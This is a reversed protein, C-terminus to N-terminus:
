FVFVAWTASNNTNASLTAQIGSISCAAYLATLGQATAICHTLDATQPQTSLNVTCTTNASMACTGGNGKFHQVQPWSQEANLVPVPAPLYGATWNDLATNLNALIIGPSGTTAIQSTTLTPASPPYSNRWCNLTVNNSGFARTAEFHLTDGPVGTIVSSQLVATTASGSILVIELATTTEDCVFGAGANTAPTLPSLLLGVGVRNSIIAITAEAYQGLTTSSPTVQVSPNWMAINFVGNTNGVIQNSNCNVTSTAMMTWNSGIAGNARNCNEFAPPNQQLIGGNGFLPQSLVVGQPSFEINNTNTTPSQSPNQVHESVFRFPSGSMVPSNGGAPTGQNMSLEGCGTCGVNAIVPLSTSDMQISDMVVLKTQLNGEVTFFPQLPGQFTQISYMKTFNPSQVLGPYTNNAAIGTGTAYNLGDMIVNPPNTPGTIIEISPTPWWLVQGFNPQVITLPASINPTQGLAIDHLRVNFGGGALVLPISSLFNVSSNTFTCKEFQSNAGINVVSYQANSYTSFAMGSVIWQSNFLNTGIMPVGYGIWSVTGGSTQSAIQYGEQPKRWEVLAANPAMLTGNAAIAGSDRVYIRTCNTSGGGLDIPANFIYYTAAPTSPIFAPFSNFFPSACAASITRQLAIGNSHYGPVATLSQPVARDLTLTSGNIATIQAEFVQKQASAPPTAPLNMGPPPIFGAQTYAPGMDLFISHQWKTFGIPAFGSGYNAYIAYFAGGTSPTGNANQPCTVMIEPYVLVTMQLVHSTAVLLSAVANQTQTATYATQITITNATVSQITFPGNAYGTPNEGPFNIGDLFIKTPRTTSLQQQLNHNTDTTLVIINSGTSESAQTVVFGNVFIVNSDSNTTVSGSGTLSYTFQTGSVITANQIGGIQNGGSTIDAVMVHFTGSTFPMSTSTNVTVVNAAWTASSIHTPAAGFVAPATNVSTAPSAQTIGWQADISACQYSVTSSGTAGIVNLTPAAPTTQATTGGAAGIVIGDNVVFDGVGTTTVTNTGNTTVTITNPIWALPRCGYIRCDVWPNPGANEQEGRQVTIGGANNGFTGGVNVQADQPTGGPVGAGVAPGLISAVANLTASIDTNGSVTINIATFCVKPQPNSPTVPGLNVQSGCVTINYTTGVPTIATNNNLTISFFGTNDLSFPGSSFTRIPVGGISPSQGTAFQLFASVTGNAYRNGNADAVTATITSTQALLPTSALLLLISALLLLTLLRKM